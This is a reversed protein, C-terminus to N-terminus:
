KSPPPQGYLSSRPGPLVGNFHSAGLLRADAIGAYSFAADTATGVIQQIVAALLLGVLGGQQQQSQEASTAMAKGDWLLAGTRLDVIRAEVEVRTESVIVAYSTGYRKVLIFVAADAGFFDRLKQYPIDQADNATNVGNQKFTEDVLTIPLVYYGAEALPLTAQAWVAPTAKVDPSENVPPMVLLTVPKAKQFASYDYPPTKTACGALLVVATVAALPALRFMNM